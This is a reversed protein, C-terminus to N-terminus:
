KKVETNNKIAGDTVINQIGSMYATIYDITDFHETADEDDEDVLSELYEKLWEMKCYLVQELTFHENPKEENEWNEWTIDMILKENWKTKNVDDTFSKWTSRM